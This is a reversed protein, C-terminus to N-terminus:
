FRSVKGRWSSMKKRIEPSVNDYKRRYLRFKYGIDYIKYTYGFLNMKMKLEFNNASAAFTLSIVM